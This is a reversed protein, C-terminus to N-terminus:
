PKEEYPFTVEVEDDTEIGLAEMLGPSIDAIRGTKENPGWDAPYAELAIGTKTAKVRLWNRWSCLVLRRSTTGGAPWTFCVQILGDLWGLQGLPSIHFSCSPLRILTLSSHWVRMPKSGKTM